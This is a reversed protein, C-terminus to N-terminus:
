RQLIKEREIIIKCKKSRIREVLSRKKCKAIEEIKKHLIAIDVNLLKTTKKKAHKANLWNKM